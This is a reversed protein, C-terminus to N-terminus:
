GPMTPFSCHFMDSPVVCFLYWETGPEFLNKVGLFDFLLQSAAVVAVSIGLLVM